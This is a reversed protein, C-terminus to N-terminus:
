MVGVGITLLQMVDIYVQSVNCHLCYFLALSNAVM